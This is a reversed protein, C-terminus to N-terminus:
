SCARPRRCFCSFGVPKSTPRLLVSGTGTDAKYSAPFSARRRPLHTPSGPLFTRVSYIISWLNVDLVRAWDAPDLEEVLGNVGGRGANNILLDVHGLRARADEELKKIEDFSSVDCKAVLARGREQEIERSVKELGALDIDVLLLQMGERALGRALSRGIGSAAGTVICKKGRLDKM